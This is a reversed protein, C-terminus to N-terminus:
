RLSSLLISVFGQLTTYLLTISGNMPNMFSNLSEPKLSNFIKYLGSLFIM